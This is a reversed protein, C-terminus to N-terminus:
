CTVHESMMIVLSVMFNIRDLKLDDDIIDLVDVQKRDEANYEVDDGYWVEGYEAVECRHEIGDRYVVKVPSYVKDNVWIQLWINFLLQWINPM